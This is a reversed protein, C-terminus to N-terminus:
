STSNSTSPGSQSLSQSPRCPVAAVDEETCRTTMHLCACDHVGLCCQAFQTLMDLSWDCATPIKCRVQAVTQSLMHLVTIQGKSRRCHQWFLVMLCHTPANSHCLSVCVVAVAPAQSCAGEALLQLVQCVAIMVAQPYAPCSVCFAM